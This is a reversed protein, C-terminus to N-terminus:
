GFNFFLVGFQRSHWEGGLLCRPEHDNVKVAFISFGASYEDKWASFLMVVIEFEPLRM